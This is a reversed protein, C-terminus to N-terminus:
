IGEGDGNGDSEGSEEMTLGFDYYPCSECVSDGSEGKDLGKAKCIACTKASDMYSLGDGFIMSMGALMGMM